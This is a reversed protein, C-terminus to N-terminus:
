PPRMMMPRDSKEDRGEKRERCCRSSHYSFPMAYAFGSPCFLDNRRRLSASEIQGSISTRVFPTTVATGRPATSSSSFDCLNLTRSTPGIGAAAEAAEAAEAAAEALEAALEAADLAAQEEARAAAWNKATELFADYPDLILHGDKM